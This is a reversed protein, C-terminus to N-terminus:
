LGHLEVMSGIRVETVEVTGELEFRWDSRGSLRRPLRVPARSAVATEYVEADGVVRLTVPYAEAIVQAALYTRRHGEWIGSEWRFTRPTDPAEYDPDGPMGVAPQLSSRWERIGDTVVYLRDAEEDIYGASIDDSFETVTNTEPDFSIAGGELFLILQNDHYFTQANEPGLAAWERLAYAPRSIIASGGPGVQVLGDPSAYVIGHGGIKSFSRKSVCAQKLELEVMVADAPHSGTVLHPRNKTGVVVTTGYAGLGVIDANAVQVYDSPWAHPQYPESFWVDRGAFGAVVGNSLAIIGELDEPPPDWGESELALGLDVDLTTDAYTERAVPLEAVQRFIGGASRYIRKLTVGYPGTVGREMGSLNATQIAGAQSMFRTETSSPPSPPGEEGKDSVYTYVWSASIATQSVVTGAPFDAITVTPATTPAPIGLRRSVPVGPGSFAGMITTDTMRPFDQGTWYTRRLTDNRIPAPVVDVDLDWTFWQTPSFRYITRFAGPHIAARLAAIPRATKSSLWCDVARRAVREALRRDSERPMSGIFSRTGWVM